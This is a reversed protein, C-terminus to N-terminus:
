LGWMLLVKGFEIDDNDKRQGAKMLKSQIRISNSQGWRLCEKPINYAQAEGNNSTTNLLNNIQQGNVVLVSHQAGRLQMVICASEGEFSEDWEPLTFSSQWELGESSKEFGQNIEGTFYNDGLHHTPIEIYITPLEAQEFDGEVGWCLNVNSFRLAGRKPEIVLDNLESWHLTNPPIRLGKQKVPGRLTGLSKGNLSIDVPGNSALDLVLYGDDRHTVLNETPAKPAGTQGWILEQLNFVLNPVINARSDSLTVRGYTQKEPTPLYSQTGSNKFVEHPYVDLIRHMTISGLAGEAFDFTGQYPGENVLQLTNKSYCAQFHSHRFTPNGGHYKDAGYAYDAVNMTWERNKCDTFNKISIGSSLTQPKNVWLPATNYKNRSFHQDKSLTYIEVQPFIGRGEAGFVVDGSAPAEGFLAGGFTSDALEMKHGGVWVERLSPSVLSSQSPSGKVTIYLYDGKKVRVGTGLLSGDPNKELKIVSQFNSTDPAAPPEAVASSPLWFLAQLSFLLYRFRM